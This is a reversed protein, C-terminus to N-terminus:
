ENERRFIKEFLFLTIFNKIKKEKLRKKALNNFM